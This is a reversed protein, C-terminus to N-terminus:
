TKIEKPKQSIKRVILRSWAAVQPLFRFAVSDLM